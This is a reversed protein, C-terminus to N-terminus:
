DDKSYGKYEFVQDNKDGDVIGVQLGREGNDIACFPSYTRGQWIISVYESNDGTTMSELKNNSKSCSSLIVMLLCLSIVYISKKM